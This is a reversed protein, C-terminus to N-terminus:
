IRELKDAVVKQNSRKLQEQHFTFFDFTCGHAETQRHKKCYTFGCRCKFGLLGVRANCDWCRTTDRQKIGDDNDATDAVVYPGTLPTVKDCDTSDGVSAVLRKPGLTTFNEKFPEVPGKAKLDEMGALGNAGTVGGSATGNASAAATSPNSKLHEQYCKSCFNLNAPSGYFGCNNACPLAAQNSNCEGLETKEM